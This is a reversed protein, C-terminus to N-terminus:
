FWSRIFMKKAFYWELIEYIKEMDLKIAVYGM